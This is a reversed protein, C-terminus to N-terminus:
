KMKFLYAGTRQKMPVPCVNQTWKGLPLVKRHLIIDHDGDQNDSVFSFIQSLWHVNVHRVNSGFKVRIWNSIVSGYAKKFIDGWCSSFDTANGPNPTLLPM